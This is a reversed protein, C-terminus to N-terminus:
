PTFGLAESAARRFAEHAAGRVRLATLIEETMENTTEHGHVVAMLAAHAAARVAGAAESVEQPGCLEVKTAAARTRQLVSNLRAVLEQPMGRTRVIASNIEPELGVSEELVELLATYAVRRQERRWLDDAHRQQLEAQGLAAKAARGAGFVAGAAGLAAGVLGAGATMWESM